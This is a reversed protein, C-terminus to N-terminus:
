STRPTQIKALITPLVDVRSQALKAKVMLVIRGTSPGLRALVAPRRNHGGHSRFNLLLLVSPSFHSLSFSACIIVSFLRDVEHHWCLPYNIGAFSRRDFTIRETNVYSLYHVSVSSVVGHSLERRRSILRSDLCSSSM